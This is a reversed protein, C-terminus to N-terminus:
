WPSKMKMEIENWISEVCFIGEAYSTTVFVVFFNNMSFTIM